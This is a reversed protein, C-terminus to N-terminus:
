TVLDKLRPRTDSSSMIIRGLATLSNGELDSIYANESTWASSCRRKQSTWMGGKDLDHSGSNYKHPGSTARWFKSQIRKGIDVYIVLKTKPHRLLGKVTGEFERFVTNGALHLYDLASFRHSIIERPNKLLSDFATCRVCRCCGLAGSTPSLYDSSLQLPGSPTPRRRIM